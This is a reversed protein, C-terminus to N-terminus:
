PLSHFRESVALSGNSMNNAQAGRAAPLPETTMFPSRWVAVCKRTAVSCCLSSFLMSNQLLLEEHVVISQRGSSHLAQAVQPVVHSRM